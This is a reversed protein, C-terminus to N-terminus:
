PKRRKKDMVTMLIEVRRNKQHDDQTGGLSLPKRKGKSTITMRSPDVGLNSLYVRVARSRNEALIENYRASGIRDTHGELITFSREDQKLRDAVQQLKSKQSDAIRWRNFAFFVREKEEVRPVIQRQSACGTLVIVLLLLFSKTNM